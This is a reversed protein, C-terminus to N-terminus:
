REDRIKGAGGVGNVAGEGAQEARCFIPRGRAVFFEFRLELREVRLIEGDNRRGSFQAVERALQRVDDVREAAADKMQQRHM